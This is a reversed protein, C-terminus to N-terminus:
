LTQAIIIAYGLQSAQVATAARKVLGKAQAFDVSPLEIQKLKLLLKAGLLKAQIAKVLDSLDRQRSETLGITFGAKALIDSYGSLPQADAICAIWGLVVNTILKAIQDDTIRLGNDGAPVRFM